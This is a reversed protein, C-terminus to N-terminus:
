YGTRTRGATITMVLADINDKDRQETQPKRVPMYITFADREQNRIQWGQPLRIMAQEDIKIDRSTEQTPAPPALGFMAIALAVLLSAKM